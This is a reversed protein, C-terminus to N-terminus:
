GYVRGFMENIIDATLRWGSESVYTDNDTSPMLVKKVVIEKKMLDPNWDYPYNYKARFRCNFVKEFRCSSCTNAKCHNVIMEVAEYFKKGEDDLNDKVSAM